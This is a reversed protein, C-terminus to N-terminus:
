FIPAHVPKDHPIDDGSDMRSEERKRRERHIEHTHVSFQLLFVADLGQRSCGSPLYCYCRYLTHGDM